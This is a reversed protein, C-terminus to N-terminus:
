NLVDIFTSILKINRSLNEIKDRTTLKYKEKVIKNLDKLYNSDRNLYKYWSSDERLYNYLNPDKKITNITYIDMNIM